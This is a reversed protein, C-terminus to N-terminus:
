KIDSTDIGNESLVTEAAKLDSTKVVVFANKATKGVFAYLYDVGIGKSEFLKLVKSLGGPANDIPVALVDTVKVIVGTERILQVARETDDAIFRVIGYEATDALSLASIDINNNGLIEVIANLRGPKNEIFVSIQKIFM